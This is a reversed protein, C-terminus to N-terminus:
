SHEEFCFLRILRGASCCVIKVQYGTGRGRVRDGMLFQNEERLDEIIHVNIQTNKQSAAVVQAKERGGVLIVNETSCKNRGTHRLKNTKM